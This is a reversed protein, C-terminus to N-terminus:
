KQQRTRLLRNYVTKKMFAPMHVFARIYIMNRFAEFRNIMKKELMFCQLKKWGAIRERRSRRVEFDKGIRVRVLMKNLNVLKMDLALMRIWLYYDELLLLPKYGGAKILSSRRIAVSVHNMPNRKRCMRRISETDAPCSRYRIIDNPDEVFEGIDSGLVDTDRHKELYESMARIRLPESIDDADMRIIYDSGCQKSGADLAAGLGMKRGCAIIKIVAGSNDDKFRRLVTGIEETVPGDEVIVIEDPKKIQSTYISKLAETLFVPSDERCVSMLVTYTM